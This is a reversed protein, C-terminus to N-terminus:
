KICSKLATVLEEEYALHLKRDALVTKSKDFLTDEEKLTDFKFDPKVPMEAKCPVPVEVLVEKTIVKIAPETHACATLIVALSLLALKNRLV